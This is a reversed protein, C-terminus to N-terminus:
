EPTSASSSELAAREKLARAAARLTPNATVNMINVSIRGDNSTANTTYREMKAFAVSTWYVIGEERMEKLVDDAHEMASQLFVIGEAWNLPPVIGGALAPLGHLSILVDLPYETWELIVVEEFPKFSIKVTRNM